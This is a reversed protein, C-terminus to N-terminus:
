GSREPLHERLERLHHLSYRQPNLHTGLLLKDIDKLLSREQESGRRVITSADCRNQIESGVHLHGFRRPEGMAPGIVELLVSELVGDEKRYEVAISGDRCIDAGLLQLM